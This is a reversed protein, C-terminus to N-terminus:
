VEGKRLREAFSAYARRVALTEAYYRASTADSIGVSAVSEAISDAHKALSDMADAIRNRENVRSWDRGNAYAEDLQSETHEPWIELLVRKLAAIDNPSLDWKPDGSAMLEVREIAENLM